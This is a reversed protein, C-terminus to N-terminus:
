GQKDDSMSINGVKKNSILGIQRRLAYHKIQEIALITEGRWLIGEQMSEANLLAQRRSAKEQNAEPVRGILLSHNQAKPRSNEKAQRDRRAEKVKYTCTHTKCTCILGNWYCM